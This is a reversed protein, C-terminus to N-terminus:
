RGRCLSLGEDPEVRPVVADRELGDAFDDEGCGIGLNGVAPAWSDRRDHIVDDIKAVADRAFVTSRPKLIVPALLKVVPEPSFDGISDSSM